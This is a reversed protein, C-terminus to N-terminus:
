PKPEKNKVVIRGDRWANALEKLFIATAPKKSTDGWERPVNSNVIEARGGGMMPVTDSAYHGVWSGLTLWTTGSGYLEVGYPGPNASASLDDLRAQLEVGVLIPFGKADKM